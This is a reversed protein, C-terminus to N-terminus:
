AERVWEWSECIRRSNLFSLSSLIVKASRCGADGGGIGEFRAASSSVSHSSACLLVVRVTERPDLFCSQMLSWNRKFAVSRSSAHLSNNAPSQKTVKSFRTKVTETLSHLSANDKGGEKPRHIWFARGELGSEPAATSIREHLTM